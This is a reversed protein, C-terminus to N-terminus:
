RVGAFSELAGIIQERVAAIQSPTAIEGVSMQITVNGGTGMGGSRMYRANESATMIREGKHALIM